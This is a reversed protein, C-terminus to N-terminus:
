LIFGILSQDVGSKSISSPHSTMAREERWFSFIRYMM